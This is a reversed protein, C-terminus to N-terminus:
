PQSWPLPTLVGEVAFGRTQSLTALAEIRERPIPHTSTYARLYDTPSEDERLREFFRDAEAIHGYRAHVLDLAFADAQSEQRRGFGRLTLDGLTVTFGPSGSNSVAAFAIQLVLVRGLTRLHDRNHFHGLEHALVFALENESAVADLLGRTVLVHGGPAAMANPADMDLIGLQFDYPAEPWLAALESTLAQLAAQRDDGELTPADAPSWGSFLRVEMQPSIFRVGIEVAFLLATFAALLLLGVGVVLASADILPHTATVNVDDRPQRPVHKM